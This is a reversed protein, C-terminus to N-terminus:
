KDVQFLQASPMVCYEKTSVRRYNSDDGITSAGPRPAPTLTHEATSQQTTRSRPSVSWQTDRAKPTVKPRAGAQMAKRLVEAHSIGLPRSRDGRSEEDVTEEGFRTTLDASAGVDYSQDEPVEDNGTVFVGILSTAHRDFDNGSGWDDGTYDVSDDVTGATDSFNTGTQIKTWSVSKHGPDPVNSWQWAGSQMVAAAKEAFHSAAKQKAALSEQRKKSKEVAAPAVLQRIIAHTVRGEPDEMTLYKEAADLLSHMTLTHDKFEFLQLTDEVDQEVNEYLEKPTFKGETPEEPEEHLLGDNWINDLGLRLVASDKLEQRGELHSRWSHIALKAQKYTKVLDAVEAKRVATPRPHTPPGERIKATDSRTYDIPGPDSSSMFGESSTSDESSSTPVESTSVVPDSDSSRRASSPHDSSPYGGSSTADEASPTSAGSTASSSPPGSMELPM